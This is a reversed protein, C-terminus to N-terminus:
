CPRDEGQQVIQRVSAAASQRAEIRLVALRCEALASGGAPAVELDALGALPLM